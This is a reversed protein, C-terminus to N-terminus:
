VLEGPHRHDQLHSRGPLSPREVLLEPEEEVGARHEAHGEGGHLPGSGGPEVRVGKGGDKPLATPSAIWDPSSIQSFATIIPYFPEKLHMVVTYQGQAVINSTLPSAVPFSTDCICANAPNLDQQINWAVAQANFPTGDTFKVGHRL